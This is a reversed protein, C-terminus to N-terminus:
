QYDLPQNLDYIKYTYIQLDEQSPFERIEIPTGAIILQQRNASIASVEQMGPYVVKEYHSNHGALGGKYLCIDKEGWFIRSNYIFSASTPTSGANWYHCENFIELIPRQHEVGFSSLKLTHIQSETENFAIAYVDNNEVALSVPTVQEPLQVEKHEVPNQRSAIIIKRIFTDPAPQTETLLYAHTDTVALDRAKTLPGGIQLQWDLMNGQQDHATVHQLQHTESGQVYFKGGLYVVGNKVAITEVATTASHEHAHTPAISVPPSWSNLEGVRNFSAVGERSDGENDFTFTGGIYLTEGDLATSKIKGNIMPAWETLRDNHDFAALSNRAQGGLM